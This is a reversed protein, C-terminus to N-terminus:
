QAASNGKMASLHSNWARSGSRSRYRVALQTGTHTGAVQCQGNNSVTDHCYVNPYLQEKHEM